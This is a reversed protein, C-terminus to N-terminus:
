DEKFSDFDIDREPDFWEDDDEDEDEDHDDADNHNSEEVVAADADHDEDDCSDPDFWEDDDSEEQDDEDANTQNPGCGEPVEGSEEKEQDKEGLSQEDQDTLSELYLDIAKAVHDHVPVGLDFLAKYQEMSIVVLATETLATVTDVQQPEQGEDTAKQKSNKTSTKPNTKTKNQKSGKNRTKQCAKNISMESNKVAEITELDGNSLVCRAKEVKTTSVGLKEATEAASKSGSKEIADGSAKSKAEESRRDGGRPKKKDLAQICTTIEADTMNRRNRQLKIAKEIAEQETDLEHTFVPVLEIGANKATQLRTHRDICVPEKQGEWTALIIPQSFDYRGECMDQEIKALLEANIPFLAEFTPHTKIQQIKKTEM